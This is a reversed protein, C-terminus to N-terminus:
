LSAVKYKDQIPERENSLSFRGLSSHVCTVIFLPGLDTRRSGRRSDRYRIEGPTHKPFPLLERDLYLSLRVSVQRLFHWRGVLVRHLEVCDNLIPEIGLGRYIQLRLSAAFRRRDFRHVAGVAAVCLVAPSERQGM